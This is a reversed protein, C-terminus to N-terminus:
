NKANKRKIYFLILLSLLVIFIVIGVAKSYLSYLGLLRDWNNGVFYGSWIILFNWLLVSLLNFFQVPLFKMDIIGAVVFFFARVGPMFRNLIIVYAGYKEFKEKIYLYREETLVMNGKKIMKPIQSNGNKRGLRRGIFYDITAGIVSGVTVSMFVAFFNWNRVSILFAGFLTVTDGPFPPFIYEILSSVFLVIYGLVNENRIIFDLILDILSM